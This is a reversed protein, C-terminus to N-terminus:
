CAFSRQAVAMGSEWTLLRSRPCLRCSCRQTVTKLAAVAKVSGWQDAMTPSTFLAIDVFTEAGALVALLCLLLIEELPYTVKDRQRPDTPDRFYSLFVITEHFGACGEATSDM